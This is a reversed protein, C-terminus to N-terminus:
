FSCNKKLQALIQATCYASFKNKIFQKFTKNVSVDLVSFLDTAKAPILFYDIDLRALENLCADDLHSWHHDFIILAKTKKKM